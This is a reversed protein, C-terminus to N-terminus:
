ESRLSICFSFIGGCILMLILAEIPLNINMTIYKINNKIINIIPLSILFATVAGCEFVFLNEAVVEFFLIIRQVGIYQKINKQNKTKHFYYGNVNSITIASYILISMCPLLMNIFTGNKLFIKFYEKIENSKYTKGSGIPQIDGRYYYMQPYGKQVADSDCLLIKSSYKPISTVGTVIYKRSGIYITEGLAIDYKHVISEGVVCQSFCDIIYSGDSIFKEYISDFGLSVLSLNVNTIYSDNYVIRDQTAWIEFEVEKSIPLEDPNEAIYMNLSSIDNYNLSDNIYSISGYYTALLLALVLMFFNVSLFRFINVTIYRKFNRFILELCYLVKNIMM